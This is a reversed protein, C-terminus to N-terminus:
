GRNLIKLSQSFDLTEDIFLLHLSFVFETLRTVRLPVMKKVLTLCACECNNAKFPLANEIKM